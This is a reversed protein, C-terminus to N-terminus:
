WRTTMNKWTRTWRGTQWRPHPRRQLAAGRRRAQRQPAPAEPCPYWNRAQNQSSMSHPCIRPPWPRCGTPLGPTRNRGEATTVRCIASKSLGGFAVWPWGALAENVAMDVTGDDRKAIHRFLDAPLIVAFPRRRQLLKHAVTPAKLTPAKLTPPALIVFDFERALKALKADV